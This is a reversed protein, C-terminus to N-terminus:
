ARVYSKLKEKLIVRGRHLRSRVTGVPRGIVEAVDEYSMGEIDTLVVVMRFDAPLADLADQIPGDLTRSMIEADASAPGMGELRYGTDGRSVSELSHFKAKARRRMGDVFTNRMIRFLWRDFHTGEVFRPFAEYAEILAEQVLDAAEDRDGTLRYAVRYISVQNQRVHAEFRTSAISELEKGASQLPVAPRANLLITPDYNSM